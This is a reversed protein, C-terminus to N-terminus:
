FNGVNVGKSSLKSAAEDGPDTQTFFAATGGVPPVTETMPLLPAGSSTASVATTAIKAAKRAAAQHKLADQLAGISFAAAANATRTAATTQGRYKELDYYKDMLENYGTGYAHQAVAHAHAAYVAEDAAHKHVAAARYHQNAAHDARAAASKYDWYRDWWGKM